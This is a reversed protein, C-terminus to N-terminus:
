RHPLGCRGARERLYGAIAWVTPVVTVAVIVVRGSGPIVWLGYRAVASMLLAALAFGVAWLRSMRHLGAVFLASVLLCFLMEYGLTWYVVLVSPTGLLEPMMILNDIFIEVLSRNANQM